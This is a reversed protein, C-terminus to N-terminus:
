GRVLMVSAKAHLAITGGHSAWIYDTINPIHSAMVVLDAAADEIATLLKKDLDIAPDGSVILHTTAAHGNQQAMDAGFSKLREEVESPSHGLESPEPSTVAVYCIEIGYHKALDSAVDLAYGLREVHRLDVPVMIKKFM